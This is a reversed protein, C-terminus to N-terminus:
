VNKMGTCNCLSKSIDTDRKTFSVKAIVLCMLAIMGPYLREEITWAKGGFFSLSNALAYGIYIYGMVRDARMWSNHIQPCGSFCVAITSVITACKSGYISWVVLCVIVFSSISMDFRAFKLQQKYILSAIVLIGCVCYIVLILYNGKQQIISILAITDLLVCLIWTAVNQTIEGRLIGHILPTHLLLAIISGTWILIENTNM